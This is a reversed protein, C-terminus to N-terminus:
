ARLKRQAISIFLASVVVLWLLLIKNWLTLRYQIFLLPNKPEPPQHTLTQRLVTGGAFTIKPGDLMTMLSGGWVYTTMEEGPNLQPLLFNNNKETIEQRERLGSIIEVYDIGEGSIRINNASFSSTNKFLIELMQPSSVYDISGFSVARKFNKAEDCNFQTLSGVDIDQLRDKIPQEKCKDQQLKHAMGGLPSDYELSGFAKRMFVPSAYKHESIYVELSGGIRAFYEYIQLSAAVFGIFAFAWLSLQGFKRLLLLRSALMNEFNAMWM